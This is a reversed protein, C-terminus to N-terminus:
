EVYLLPEEDTEIRLAGGGMLNDVINVNYAKIYDGWFLEECTNHDAILCGSVPVPTDETSM